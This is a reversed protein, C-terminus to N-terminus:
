QCGFRANSSVEHPSCGASGAIFAARRLWAERLM